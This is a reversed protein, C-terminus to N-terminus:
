ALFAHDTGRGRVAVIDDNNDVDGDPGIVAGARALGAPSFSTPRGYADYRIREVIKMQTSSPAHILAVVDHRWNQVYYLREERVQGGEDDKDRDRCVLADIYSSGGRGDRGATHHTYVETPKADSGLYLSTRVELQRIASPM